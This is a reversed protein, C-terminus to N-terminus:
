CRRRAAIWEERSVIEAHDDITSEAPLSSGQSAADIPLRSSEVSDPRATRNNDTRDYCAETRRHRVKKMQLFAKTVRQTQRHGPGNLMEKLATPVVQWSLGFKDKLWGCPGEQGGARSSAGSITSRKRTRASSRSRSRRTSSSTRAATSASLHRGRSKSNRRADGHRSEQRPDRVGRQRLPQNTRISRIRSCPSISNRPTRPRPTSGCAPRSRRQTSRCPRCRPMTSARLPSIAHWDNWPRIATAAVGVPPDFKKPPM